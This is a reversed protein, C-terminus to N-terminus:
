RITVASEYSHELRSSSYTEPQVRSSADPDRHQQLQSASRHQRQMTETTTSTVHRRHRPSVRIEIQPHTCDIEIDAPRRAKSRPVEGISPQEVKHSTSLNDFM